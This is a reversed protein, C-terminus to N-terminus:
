GSSLERIIQGYDIVLLDENPNFIDETIPRTVVIHKQLSQSALINRLFQDSLRNRSKSDDIVILKPEAVDILINNFNKDLHANVSFM